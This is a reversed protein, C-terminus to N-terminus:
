TATGWSAAVIRQLRCMARCSSVRGHGGGERPVPGRDLAYGEPAASRASRSRADAGRREPVTRAIGGQAPSRGFGSFVVHLCLGERSRCVGRRVSIAFAAEGSSCPLASVPWNRVCIWASKSVTTSLGPLRGDSGPSSTKQHHTVM